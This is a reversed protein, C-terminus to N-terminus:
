QGFVHEFTLSMHAWSAEDAFENYALPLGYKKGNTTAIPNSFGHLAVVDHAVLVGPRSGQLDQDWALYGHMEVGDASYTMSQTHIDTM